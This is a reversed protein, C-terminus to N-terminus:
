ATLSTETTPRVWLGCQVRTMHLQKACRRLAAPNCFLCSYHVRDVKKSFMSANRSLQCEDIKAACCSCTWGETATEGAGAARGGGEGPLRLELPPLRENNVIRFCSVHAEM